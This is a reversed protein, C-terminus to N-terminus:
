RSARGGEGGAAHDDQKYVKVMGTIQNRIAESARITLLEKIETKNSYNFFYFIFMSNVYDV